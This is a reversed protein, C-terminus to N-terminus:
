TTSLTTELIQRSTLENGLNIIHQFAEDNDLTYQIYLYLELNGNQPSITKGLM